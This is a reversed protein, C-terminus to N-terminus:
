LIKLATELELIATQVHTFAKPHNGTGLVAQVQLLMQQAARVQVDSAIQNEHVKPTAANALKAAAHANAKAAAVAPNAPVHKGAGKHHELERIAEGIAHVAKARHGKYDHNAGELIKKASKLTAIEDLKVAQNAAVAGAVTGPVQAHVSVPLILIGAVAVLSVHRVARRLDFISM